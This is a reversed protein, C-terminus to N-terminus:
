AAQDSRDGNQGAQMSRSSIADAHITIDTEIVGGDSHQRIRGRPLEIFAKLRLAHMM